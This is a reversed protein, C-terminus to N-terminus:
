RALGLVGDIFRGTVYIGNKFGGINHLIPLMVERRYRNIYSVGHPMRM